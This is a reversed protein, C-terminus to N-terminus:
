LYFDTLKSFVGTEYVNMTFYGGCLSEKTHNVANNNNNNYPCKM